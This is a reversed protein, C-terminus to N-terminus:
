FQRKGQQWVRATYGDARIELWRNQFFREYLVPLLDPLAVAEPLWEM